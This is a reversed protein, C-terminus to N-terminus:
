AIIASRRVAAALRAAEIEVLRLSRCIGAAAVFDASSLTDSKRAKFAAKRMATHPRVMVIPRPLEPLVDKRM